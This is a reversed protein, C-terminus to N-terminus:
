WSCLLNVFLSCRGMLWVGVSMPYM